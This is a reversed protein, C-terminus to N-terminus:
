SERFLTKIRHHLNDYMVRDDGTIMYGHDILTEMQFRAHTYEEYGMEYVQKALCDKGERELAAAYDLYKNSIEMEDKLDHGLLREMIKKCDLDEVMAPDSMPTMAPDTNMNHPNM